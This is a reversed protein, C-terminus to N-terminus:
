PSKTILYYIRLPSSCVCSSYTRNSHQKHSQQHPLSTTTDKRGQWLFPSQPLSTHRTLEACLTCMDLRLHRTEVIYSKIQLNFIQFSLWIKFHIYNCTHRHTHICRHTPIHIQVLTDYVQHMVSQFCM